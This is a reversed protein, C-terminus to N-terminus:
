ANMWRMAERLMQELSAPLPLRFCFYLEKGNVVFTGRVVGLVTESEVVVIKLGDADM